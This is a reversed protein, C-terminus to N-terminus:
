ASGGPSTERPIATERPTECLNLEGQFWTVMEDIHRRWAAAREPTPAEFALVDLIWGTRRVYADLMPQPHSKLHKRLVQHPDTGTRRALDTDDPLAVAAGCLRCRVSGPPLQAGM